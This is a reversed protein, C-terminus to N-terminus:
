LGPTERGALAVAKAIKSRDEVQGLIWLLFASAAAIAGIIPWVGALGNKDIWTGVIPPSITFGLGGILPLIAQFRGRHSMPTHNAVYAGENTANIIEGITWVFTTFYFFFVTNALGILGFGLAFFLGSLAVSNIPKWKKTIGMIPTSLLIVLVANLTMLSGYIASGPVGFLHRTQLPLAFRHQAYVFGYWTTIITFVILYPRSSLAELLNGKHAEESSGSGISAEIQSASPKTEPVKLAVILTAAFVTVTNGWFLLSSATEFLFGAILSGIAFGLNHGLYTLSFAARRNDPNTLDTMMAMRAPDCIGDFFVSVLIFYPVYSALAPFGCPIYMAASIIQTVVMLRKRGWKDALKGGIFNGPIYVLSIFFMFQGTETQSMKLKTTLFLALFPFVFMGMSNVISAAFLM